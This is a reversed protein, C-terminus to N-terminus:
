QIQQYLKRYDFFRWRGLDSIVPHSDILTIYHKLSEIGQFIFDMPFMLKFWGALKQIGQPCWLLVPKRQMNAWTIEEITGAMVVDMDIKAIIFDSKDVMRLDIRRIEKGFEKFEAWKKEQTL